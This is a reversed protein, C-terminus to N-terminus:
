NKIPKILILVANYVVSFFTMHNQLHEAAFCDTLAYKQHKGENPSNTFHKTLWCFYLKNNQCFKGKIHCIGSFPVHFIIWQVLRCLQANDAKDSPVTM